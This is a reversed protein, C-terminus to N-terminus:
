IQKREIQRLSRAAEWRLQKVESNCYEKLVNRVHEGEFSQLARILKWLMLEDIKYKEIMNLLDNQLELDNEYYSIYGITDIAELIQNYDGNYLCKKLSKLAPKGIKCITRAIIDRPLPYNKKKFKKNPLSRHQNNGVKGLYRILEESAEEGFYGLSESIAIKTYLKDEIILRNVLAKLVTPNQFGVLLKAAITRKSAVKSNILELLDERSLNEFKFIDKDDVYGRKKLQELTSKMLEGKDLFINWVNKM